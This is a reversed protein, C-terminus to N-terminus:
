LMLIALVLLAKSFGSFHLESSNVLLPTLKHFGMGRLFIVSIIRLSIFPLLLVMGHMLLLIPHCIHSWFFVNWKTIGILRDEYILELIHTYLDMAVFRFRDLAIITSLMFIIM